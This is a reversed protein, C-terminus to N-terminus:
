EVGAASNVGIRYAGEPDSDEDADLRTIILALRDCESPDLHSLTFTQVGGQSARVYVPRASLKRPRGGIDGLKAGLRAAQRDARNGNVMWVQLAFRAGTGELKVTLDQGRSRPDLYLEILDTGYSAPISGEYSMEKGEYHLEAALSPDPYISDPDYHWGQCEAQGASDCRGDQLRLAYNARAFAVLSEEFSAFPGGARRMAADMVKPLGSVIDPSYHCAMEELATRWVRMDGSQEYLFRWYLAADYKHVAEEDLTRYSTELRSALYRKAAQGYESSAQVVHERRM